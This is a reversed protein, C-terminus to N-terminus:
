KVLLLNDARWSAIGGALKAVSFGAKQLDRCVTGAHQGMADVVVITKAKHKELEVMRTALKEMPINLAEVIHGASFEKAARVDLVVGQGLNVLDTLERSSLSKGSRGTESILLLILFVVFLSVLFYHNGAFELLHAVNM